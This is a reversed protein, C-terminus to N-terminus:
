VRTRRRDIYPRSPPLCPAFPPARRTLRFPRRRRLPRRRDARRPRRRQRPHVAPRPRARGRLARDDREPEWGAIVDAVYGGLMPRMDGIVQAALAAIRADLAAHAAEDARLRTALDHILAAIPAAVADPDADIRAALRDRLTEAFRLALTDFAGSRVLHRRSEGITRALTGERELTDVVDDFTLEFGRRLDSGETGLEDLLSLVGEVALAAVRRDITAAIWWRSRDQVLETATDRNEDM